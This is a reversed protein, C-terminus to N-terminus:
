AQAKEIKLFRKTVVCININQTQFHTGRRDALGLFLDVEIDLRAQRHGLDCAVENPQFDKGKILLVEM